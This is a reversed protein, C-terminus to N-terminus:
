PNGDSVEMLKWHLNQTDLHLRFDMIGDTVHFVHLIQRGQRTMHHYTVEKFIIDENKWRMKYPVVKGRDKDFITLMSVKEDPEYLM